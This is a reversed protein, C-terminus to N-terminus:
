TDVDSASFTSTSPTAISDSGSDPAPGLEEDSDADRLYPYDPRFLTRTEEERLLEDFLAIAEEDALAASTMENQRVSQDPADREEHEEEAQSDQPTDDESDDSSFGQQSRRIARYVALTNMKRVRARTKPKTDMWNPSTHELSTPVAYHLRVLREIGATAIMPLTPHCMASNVISQSGELTFAPTSLSVPREMVVSDESEARFWVHDLGTDADAKWESELMSAHGSILTDLPPIKWGYARFDDSGSAYYMCGTQSEFGFSGRKVTCSNRYGAFRDCPLKASDAVCPNLHPHWDMSSLTALPERRGVAYLVPHYLSVDAMIFKGSPDFQAGTTEMRRSAHEDVTCKMCMASVYRVLAHDLDVHAERGRFINRTDFLAVGANPECVTSVAFTHGDNENPNFQASALQAPFFSYGAVHTNPIRMDLLFLEGCDSSSLLLHPNTPHASVERIGAEHESMVMDSFRRHPHRVTYSPAASYNLDYCLVQQDNGGSYLYRNGASWSLSFINSTHGLLRGLTHYSSSEPATCRETNFDFMDRIHIRMDDGGSALWQGAGRSFSLANICSRHGKVEHLYPFGTHDIAYSLIRRRTQIADIRGRAPQATRFSHPPMCTVSFAHTKHEIRQPKQAASRMRRRKTPPSAVM